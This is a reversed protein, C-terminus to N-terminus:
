KGLTFEQISDREPNSWSQDSYTLVAKTVLGEKNIKEDDFNNTSKEFFEKADNPLEAVNWRAFNIPRGFPENGNFKQVEKNQPQLLKFVKARVRTQFLSLDRGIDEEFSCFVFISQKTAKTFKAAVRFPRLLSIEEEVIKLIEEKNPELLEKMKTLHFDKDIQVAADLTFHLQINEYLEIVRPDYQKFKDRESSIYSFIEPTQSIPVNISLYSTEFTCGRKLYLLDSKSENSFYYSPCYKTM